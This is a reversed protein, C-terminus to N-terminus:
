KTNTKQNSKLALIYLLICIQNYNTISVTIGKREPHRIFANLTIVNTWQKQPSLTEANFKIPIKLYYANSLVSVTEIYELDVRMEQKPKVASFAIRFYGPIQNTFLQTQLDWEGFEDKKEEENKMRPSNPNTETEDEDELDKTHM